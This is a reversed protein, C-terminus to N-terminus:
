GRHDGQWSRCAGVDNLTSKPVDLSFAQQIDRATYGADYLTGIMDVQLQTLKANWHNEGAKVGSIGMRRFKDFVSQRTRGLEEAIEAATKVGAMQRLVKEEYETWPRRNM